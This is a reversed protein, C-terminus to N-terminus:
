PLVRIMDLCLVISVISLESYTVIPSSHAEGIDPVAGEFVVRLFSHQRKLLALGVKGSPVPTLLAYFPYIM